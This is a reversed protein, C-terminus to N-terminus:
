HVYRESSSGAMGAQGVLSMDSCSGDDIGQEQGHLLDIRRKKQCKFFIKHHIYLPSKDIRTIDKVRETGLVPFGVWGLWVVPGGQQWGLDM